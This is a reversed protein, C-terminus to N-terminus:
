YFLWEDKGPTGGLALLGHLNHAVLDADALHRGVAFLAPSLKLPQAEVALGAHHEAPRERSSHVLNSYM